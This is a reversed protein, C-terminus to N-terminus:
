LSSASCRFRSESPTWAPEQMSRSSLRTIRMPLGFTGSRRCRRLLSLWGTRHGMEAWPTARPEHSAAGEPSLAVPNSIAAPACGWRPPWGEARPREGPRPKGVTRKLFNPTTRAIDQASMGSAIMRLIVAVTIRTGRITPQGFCVNPDVTIRDLAM